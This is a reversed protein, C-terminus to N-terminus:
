GSGFSARAAYIAVPSTLACTDKAPEDIDAAGAAVDLMRGIEVRDDPEWDALPVMSAKLRRVNDGCSLEPDDEVYGYERCLEVFRLTQVKGLNNFSFNRWKAARQSWMWYSRLQHPVEILPGGDPDNRGVLPLGEMLGWFEARQEEFGDGGDDDHLQHLLENARDQDAPSLLSFDPIRYEEEKTPLRDLKTMMDRARM